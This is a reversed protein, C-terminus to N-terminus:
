ASLVHENMYCSTLRLQEPTNAAGVKAEECQRGSYLQRPENAQGAQRWSLGTGEDFPIYDRLSGANVVAM